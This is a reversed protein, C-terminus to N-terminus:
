QQPRIGIWRYLMAVLLGLCVAGGAVLVTRGDQGFLWTEKFVTLAGLGRLRFHFRPILEVTQFGISAVSGVLFWALPVALLEFRFARTPRETREVLPQVRRLSALLSNTGSLREFAVYAVGGLTLASILADAAFFAFAPFFRARGTLELGWATLTAAWLSATAVVVAFHLHRGSAADESYASRVGHWFLVVLTGLLLYGVTEWVAFVGYVLQYCLYGIVTGVVAAPGGVIATTAVLAPLPRVTFPGLSAWAVGFLELLVLTLASAASGVVVTGVIARFSVTSHTSLAERSEAM